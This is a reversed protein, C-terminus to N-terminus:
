FPMTQMLVRVRCRPGGVLSFCSATQRQKEWWMFSRSPWGPRSPAWLAVMSLGLPAPDGLPSADTKPKSDQGDASANNRGAKTEQNEKGGNRAAELISGEFLPNGDYITYVCVCVCVCVCVVCRGRDPKNEYVRGVRSSRQRCHMAGGVRAM